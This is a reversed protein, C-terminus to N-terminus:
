DGGAVELLVKGKTERAELARHAEAYQAFPLTRDITVRLWGEEIGRYIDDMRMRVEEANSTFHELHSRTFLVSGAAGLEMPAIADVQGSTSGYLVCYGRTKVCKISDHITAIGVSDWVIDVGKGDTRSKVIERFNERRYEIIEDAGLRKVFLAKEPSGVTAFVRAGQRKALQVLIHGVGGAAAHVLCLSKPGLTIFAHCLYHATGGQLQTAAATALSIGRPVLTCRWAPVAVYEAYAGIGEQFAVRDGVKVDDVGNGTAVVTGSAELGLTFPFRPKYSIGSPGTSRNRYVGTRLYVDKFNVGAYAVKVVVWGPKAEPTPMEIMEMVEPGGYEKVVVGRM